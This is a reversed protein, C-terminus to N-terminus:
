LIIHIKNRNTLTQCISEDPGKRIKYVGLDRRIGIIGLVLGNFGDAHTGNEYCPPTKLFAFNLVALYWGLEDPRDRLEDKIFAVDNCPFMANLTDVKALVLERQIFAQVAYQIIAQSCNDRNM